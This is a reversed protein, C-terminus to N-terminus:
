DWSAYDDNLGWQQGFTEEHVLIAFERIIQRPSGLIYFYKGSYANETEFNPLLYNENYWPYTEEGEVGTKLYISYTYRKGNTLNATNPGYYAPTLVSFGYAGTLNRGFTYLYNPYITPFYFLTSQTNLSVVYNKIGEEAFPYHHKGNEDIYPIYEITQNFEDKEQLKYNKISILIVENKILSSNDKAEYISGDSKQFYITFRITLNYSIDEATLFYYVQNLGNESTIRYQIIAQEEEYGIYDALLDDTWSGNENREITAGIPLTFIPHYYELDIDAVKGDIRFYRIPTLATNANDYDIGDYYFMPYHSSILPNGMTDAVYINPYIVTQESDLQFKIDKLYADIGLLKEINITGLNLYVGSERELEFVYEKFGVELLYTIHVEYYTYARFYIETEQPIFLNSNKYIKTTVGENLSNNPFGFDVFIETLLDERFAEIYNPDDANGNKYVVINPLAREIITHEIYHPTNSESTITYNLVYEKLGAGYIYQTSLASLSAFPSLYVKMIVQGNYIIEYYLADDLYTPVTQDTIKTFSINSNNQNYLFGDLIIGFGIYTNFDSTQPSFDISEGSNDWSYTNYELGLVSYELSKDKTFVVSYDSTNAYIRYKASYTGEKLRSDLIVKFGFHNNTSLPTFEVSYYASDVENVGYFLGSFVVNHNLPLLGNGSLFDLTISGNAFVKHSTVTYTDGVLAPVTASVENVLVSALSINLGTVQRTIIISYETKYKNLLSSVQTAIESYVSLKTPLTVTQGSNVTGSFTALFADNNGTLINSTRSNYAQKLNNHEGPTIGSKAIVAKESLTASQVQYYVSASSFADNSLTFTITKNADNIVGGQLTPSTGSPDYLIIDALTPNNNQTLVLSKENYSVQFMKKFDVEFSDVDDGSSVLDSEKINTLDLYDKEAENISYLNNIKINGPLVAGAQRGKTSALVYMGNPKAYTGSQFRSALADVDANYIYDSQSPNMLPFSSDFVYTKATEAQSDSVREIPYQALAHGIAPSYSLNINNYFYAVKAANDLTARNSSYSLGSVDSPVLNYYSLATSPLTTFTNTFASFNGRGSTRTQPVETGSTVSAQTSYVGVLRTTGHYLGSGSTVVVNTVTYSYNSSNGSRTIQYTVKTASTFTVQVAKNYGVLTAQTTDNTRATYYTDNVGSVKFLFYIFSGYSSQDVRGVMDIAPDMNLINVFNNSRMSGYSGRQLRGFIGGFGRKRNPYISLNYSSQFIFSTDNDPYLTVNDNINNTYIDEISLYTIDNYKAKRIAKIKGYHVATNINVYTIAQAQQSAGGLIYTAGVIGGAVDTSGVVGHNLMRQMKTLGYAIVGGAAAFIGPRESNASTASEGATNMTGVYEGISSTLATINGFNLGNSLECNIIYDGAGAVSYSFKKIAGTEQNVDTGSTLEIGLAIALIGGSRVYEKAKGYINGNNASDLIKGVITANQGYGTLISAKTDGFAAAIGGLALGGKYAIILGGYKSGYAINAVYAKAESNINTYIINGTNGVDQILNYNITVLGGVFSNAAGTIDNLNAALGAINSTINGRNFSNTIEGVNLNFLGAVYLNRSTFTSPFNYANTSGPASALTSGSIGATIINGKNLINIAKYPTNTTTNFPLIWAIGAVYIEENANNLRIVTIDGSNYVNTYNIKTALTIGAIRLEKNVTTQSALSGVTINGRNEVFLLESDNNTISTFFPAINTIATATTFYSAGFTFDAENYARSLRIGGSSNDTITASYFITVNHTLSTFNTFAFNGSNTMYSFNALGESTSSVGIGATYYFTDSNLHTAEINGINEFRGNRVTVNDAEVLKFGYNIANGFVGGLNQYVKADAKGSFSGGSINGSNTLYYLSNGTASTNNIEGIIGGASIKIYDNLKLTYETNSSLTTINGSNKAYRLSLGSGASAGIIGGINFKGDTTLNNFNHTNGTINGLNVLNRLTGSGYGVIGGINSSGLAETGLDISTNSIINKITANNSKGSVTGIYLTKGYHDKTSTALIEGNYFNINKVVGNLVGFFGLYYESGVIAPIQIKLNIIYKNNNLTSEPTFEVDGGSFTGKFESTPTKYYPINRMDIDNMLRYSQNSYALGNYTTTLNVLKSFAILDYEDNIKFYNNVADYELGILRPLGDNAYYHWSWREGSINEQNLVLPAGGSTGNVIQNYSYAVVNTQNLNDVSNVVVEDYAAGNITGSNNYYFPKVIFRFKSGTAMVNKSVFFSNFIKGAALNTHVFGAASFEIESSPQDLFNFRIGSIDNGAQNTKKDIVAVNHVQGNNKGVLYATNVLGEPVNLLEYVPNELTFNKVLAMTDLENFMAYYPSLSIDIDTLPDDDFRYITSITNYDALYLNKISFGQGDFSGTFPYYYRVIGSDEITIDTGLPVFKKAKMTSYDIDSLLIYNYSLIKKITKDYPVRNVSAGYRYNFSASVSFNYLDEASMIGIRKTGVLANLAAEISADRLAVTAYATNMQTEILNYIDSFKVIEEALGTKSITTSFFPNTFAQQVRLNDDTQEPNSKVHKFNITSFILVIMITLILLLAKKTKIM